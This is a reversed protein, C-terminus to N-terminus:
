LRSRRILFFNVMVEKKERKSEENEWNSVRERKECEVIESGDRLRLRETGVRLRLRETGVRM